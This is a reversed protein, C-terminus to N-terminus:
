GCPSPVVVRMRRMRVVRAVSAPPSSASMASVGAASAMRTGGGPPVAPGACAGVWTWVMTTPPMGPQCIARIAAAPAARAAAMRSSRALAARLACAVV